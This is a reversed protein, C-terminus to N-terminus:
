QVNNQWRLIILECRRYYHVHRDEAQPVAWQPSRPRRITIQKELRNYRSVNDRGGLLRDTDRSM